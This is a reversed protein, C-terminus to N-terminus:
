ARGTPRTTGADRYGDSSPKSSHSPHVSLRAPLILHPLPCGTAESVAAYLERGDVHHGPVIYRHARGSQALAAAILTAVDRVDVVHQAGRPFTPFRGLLM